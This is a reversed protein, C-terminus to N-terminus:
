KVRFHYTRGFDVKTLVKSSNMQKLRAIIVPTGIDPPREQKIGPDTYRCESFIYCSTFIEYISTVYSRFVQPAPFPVIEHCDTSQQNNAEVGRLLDLSVKSKSLSHKHYPSQCLVLDTM